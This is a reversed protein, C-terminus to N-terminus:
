LYLEKSLDTLDQIRSICNSPSMKSLSWWVTMVTSKLHYMGAADYSTLSALGQDQRSKAFYFAAAAADPYRLTITTKGPMPARAPAAAYLECVAGLIEIKENALQENTTFSM